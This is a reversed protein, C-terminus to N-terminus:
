AIPPQNSPLFSLITAAIREATTTGITVTDSDSDLPGDAEPASDVLPALWLGLTGSDIWDLSGGAILGEDPAHVVAVAVHSRRGLYAATFVEATDTAVGERRLLRVADDIDNSAHAAVFHEFADHPVEFETESVEPAGPIEPIEPLGILDFLRFLLDTTSFPTFRHIGNEQTDLQVAVEPTALIQFMRTVGDPDVVRGRVVLGPAGVLAFLSEIPEAVEGNSTVVRRAILSLHVTRLLEADFVPSVGLVELLSAGIKEALCCLEEPTFDISIEDPDAAFKAMDPM